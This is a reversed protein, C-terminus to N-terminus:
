QQGTPPTVCLIMWRRVRSGTLVGWLQKRSGQASSMSLLCNSMFTCCIYVFSYWANWICSEGAACTVSCATSGKYSWIYLEDTQIYLVVHDKFGSRIDVGIACPGQNCPRETQPRAEGCEEDPLDVETKTFSLLVRCKVERTQRGPGCTTSCVSWLGPIFRFVRTCVM